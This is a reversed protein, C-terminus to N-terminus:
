TPRRGRRPGRERRRDLWDGNDRRSVYGARTIDTIRALQRRLEATAAAKEKSRQWDRASMETFLATAKRRRDPRKVIKVATTIRRRRM